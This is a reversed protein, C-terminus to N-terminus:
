NAALKRLLETVNRTAVRSVNFALEYEHTGGDPHRHKWPVLGDKTMTLAWAGTQLGGSRRVDSSWCGETMLWKNSQDIRGLFGLRRDTDVGSAWGPEHVEQWTPVNTAEPFDALYLYVWNSHCYFDQVAHHVIGLLATFERSNRNFHAAQSQSWHELISWYSTIADLTFLDDFHPERQSPPMSAPFEADLSKRMARVSEVWRMTNPFFPGVLLWQEEIRDLDTAENAYAVDEVNGPWPPVIAKLASVTLTHHEGMSWEAQPQQGQLDVVQQSQSTSNAVSQPAGLSKVIAVIRGSLCPGEPDIVRKAADCRNRAEELGAIRIAPLGDLVTDLSAVRVAAVLSRDTAVSLLAILHELPSGTRPFRMVTGHAVAQALDRM